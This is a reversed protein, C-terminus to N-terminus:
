AKSSKCIHNHQQTCAFFLRRASATTQMYPILTRRNGRESRIPPLSFERNQVSTAHSSRPPVTRILWQASYPAKQPDTEVCNYALEGIRCIRRRQHGSSRVPRRQYGKRNANRNVNHLSRRLRGRVPAIHDRLRKQPTTQPLGCVPNRRTFKDLFQRNKIDFAGPKPNEDSNSNACILSHPVM